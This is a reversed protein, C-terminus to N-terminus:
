DRRSRLIAAKDAVRAATVLGNSGDTGTGRHWIVFSASQAAILDDAAGQLNSLTGSALSGDSQYMDGALPVVFTRGRLRKRDTITDTLWTICAGSPASYPGTGVGSLSSVATAGWAGTLAGTTDEIIDGTNEVQLNVDSPMGAKVTTWFSHVSSVATAVDLFFMTAVGPGGPFGTLTTRLRYLETMEDGM